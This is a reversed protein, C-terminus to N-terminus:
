YLNKLLLCLTIVTPCSREQKHFLSLKVIIQSGEKCIERGDQLTEGAWASGVADCVDRSTEQKAEAATSEM